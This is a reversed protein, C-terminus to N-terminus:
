RKRWRELTRLVPSLANMAEDAYWLIAGEVRIPLPMMNRALLRGLEGHSCHYLITLHERSFMQAEGGLPLFVKRPSPTPSETARALASSLAEVTNARSKVTEKTSGRYKQGDIMFEYHWYKGRKKIAM